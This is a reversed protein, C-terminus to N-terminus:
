LLNLDLGNSSIITKTTGSAMEISIRLEYIIFSSVTDLQYMEQFVYINNDFYHLKHTTNRFRFHTESQGRVGSKSLSLASSTADKKTSELAWSRSHSLRLAVAIASERDAQTQRKYITWCAGTTRKTLRSHVRRFYSLHIQSFAVQNIILWKLTLTSKCQPTKLIAM